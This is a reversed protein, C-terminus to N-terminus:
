HGGPAPNLDFMDAYLGAASGIPDIRVSDCAGELPMPVIAEAVPLKPSAISKRGRERLHRCKAEADAQRRPERTVM